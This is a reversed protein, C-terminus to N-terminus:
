STNQVIIPTIIMKYAAVHCKVRESSARKRLERERERQAETIAVQLPKLTEEEGNSLSRDEETEFTVLSGNREGIQRRRNSASRKPRAVTTTVRWFRVTVGDDAATSARIEPFLSGIVGGYLM